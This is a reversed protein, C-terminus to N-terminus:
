WDWIWQGSNTRLAQLWVMSEAHGDSFAVNGTNAHPPIPAADATIGGGCSTV